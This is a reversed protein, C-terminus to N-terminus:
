WRIRVTSLSNLDDGLEGPAIFDERPGFQFGLHDWLEWYSELGERYEVGGQVVEGSNMVTSDNSIVRLEV